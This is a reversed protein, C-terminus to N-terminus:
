DCSCVHKEFVNEKDSGHGGAYPESLLKSWKIAPQHVIEASHQLNKHGSKDTIGEGVIDCNVSIMECM